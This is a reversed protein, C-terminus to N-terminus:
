GDATFEPLALASDQKSAGGALDRAIGNPRLVGDAGPTTGDGDTGPKEDGLPDAARAQFGTTGSALARLSGIIAPRGIATALPARSGMAGQGQVEFQEQGTSTRFLAERRAAADGVLLGMSVEDRAASSVDNGSGLTGDNNSMALEAHRAKRQSAMLLAARSALAVSSLTHVAAGAGGAVPRLLGGSQKVREISAWTGPASPGLGEGADGGDVLPDIVGDLANAGAEQRRM